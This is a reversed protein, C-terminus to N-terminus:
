RAESLKTTQPDAATPGTGATAGLEDVASKTLM